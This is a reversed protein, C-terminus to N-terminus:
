LPTKTEQAQLFCGTVAKCEVALSIVASCL